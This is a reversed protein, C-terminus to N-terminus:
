VSPPARSHYGSQATIPMGANETVSSSWMGAPIGAPARSACIAWGSDSTAAAFEYNSTPAPRARPHDCDPAQPATLRARGAATASAAGERRYRCRAVRPRAIGAGPSDACASRCSARGQSAPARARSRDACILRSSSAPLKVRGCLLGYPAWRSAPKRPMPPMWRPSNAPRPTVSTLTPTDQRRRLFFAHQM